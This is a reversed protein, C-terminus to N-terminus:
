SFLPRRAVFVVRPICISAGAMVEDYAKEIAMYCKDTDKQVRNREVVADAVAEEIALLHLETFASALEPPPHGLFETKVDSFGVEALSKELRAIIGDDPGVARLYECLGDLAPTPLWPDTSPKNVRMHVVDQEDWQLYGGPKLLSLLNRLVVRPDRNQVVPVLLRVHVYDYRGLLFWPAPRSIDWKYKYENLPKHVNAPLSTIHPAQSVDNQLWDLDGDPGLERAVDLLWICTGPGIGAVCAKKPLHPLISAHINNNNNNLAAKWLYHHLTHRSAATRRRVRAWAKTPDREESNSQM